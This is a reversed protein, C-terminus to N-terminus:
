KRMIGSLLVQRSEPWRWQTNSLVKVNVIVVYNLKFNLLTFKASRGLSPPSYILYNLINVGNFQFLKKGVMGVVLVVRRVFSSPSRCVGVLALSICVGMEPHGCVVFVIGPAIEGIGSQLLTKGPSPCHSLAPRVMQEHHNFILCVYSLQLQPLLPDLCRGTRLLYTLKIQWHLALWSRYIIECASHPYWGSPFM